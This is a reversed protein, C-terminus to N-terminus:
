LQPDPCCVTGTPLIIYYVCLICIDSSHHTILSNSDSIWNDMINYIYINYVYYVYLEIYSLIFLSFFGLVQSYPQHFGLWLIWSLDLFEGM